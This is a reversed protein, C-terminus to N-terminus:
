FAALKNRMQSQDSKPVLDDFFKTVIDLGIQMDVDSYM